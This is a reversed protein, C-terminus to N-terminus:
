ETMERTTANWGERSIFQHIELYPVDSGQATTALKVKTIIGVNMGDAIAECLDSEARWIREVKSMDIERKM